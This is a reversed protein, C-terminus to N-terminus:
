ESISETSNQECTTRSHSTASDGPTPKPGPPSPKARNANISFSRRMAWPIRLRLFPRGLSPQIQRVPERDASPLPSGYNSNISAIACFHSRHKSASSENPGANFALPALPASSSSTSPFLGSRVMPATSSAHHSRGTAIGRGCHRARCVLRRRPKLWRCGRPTRSSPSCSWSPKGVRWDFRGTLQWEVGM